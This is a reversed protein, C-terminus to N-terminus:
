SKSGENRSKGKLSSGKEYNVYFQLRKLERVFRTNEVTGKGLIKEKKNQIEQFFFMIDLEFGVTSFGFFKSFEEFKSKSWLDLNAERPQALALELGKEKTESYDPSRAQKGLIKHKSGGGKLAIVEVSRDKSLREKVEM